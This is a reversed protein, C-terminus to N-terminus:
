MHHATPRPLAQQKVTGLGRYLNTGIEYLLWGVDTAGTLALFRRPDAIKNTANKAALYILRPLVLM